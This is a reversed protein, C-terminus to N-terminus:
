LSAATAIWAFLARPYRHPTVIIVRRDCENGKKQEDPLAQYAKANLLRSELLCFPPAKSQRESTVDLIGRLAAM